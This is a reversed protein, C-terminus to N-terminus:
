LLCFAKKLVAAMMDRKFSARKKAEDLVARIEPMMLVKYNGLAYLEQGCGQLQEIVIDKALKSFDEESDKM